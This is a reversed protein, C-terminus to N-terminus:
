EGPQTIGRSKLRYVMQPRTIGLLRAAAAVNGQARDVAKRLLLSEIDDLSVTCKGDEVGQLLNSLHRAVRETEGDAAPEGLLQAPDAKVWSGGRHMAYLGAGFQEGSTFLQPADIGAGETALIVSREVANELERINGPWEYSMVADVARQTFGTIHRGHLRNFKGLFHTMLLPIDERRERLPVVRIPFVNLRFFLDERFRGAAVEERLNVNTAAIVRVDVRRTQTDGLREIEGEQLARLLNGQAGASLTGIEDLFLTGGDAREFRGARSQGAGTFAGREVGFLESEILQEPIAACNVAVFPKAARASLRHLTRAFVEKGVGSEGLFLVTANTPAVRQVMHLVANFGPSIGVPQGSGTAPSPLSASAPARPPIALPDHPLAVPLLYKLDAAGEDAWEEVPKGVIRCASQGMSQCDLERYLVQRGMFETAFGSAYGVQMWCSPETGLAFHRTHEEDEVQHRWLFEGYHTGQELDFELRVPESLGIGELCHMQPGVVFIDKLSTSSRVKRAMAADYTGAQYGMRTFLGRTVELGLLDIMERRLTGLARAHILLMRQDDLWIRGDSTSFHLRSMLDALDPFRVKDVDIREAPVVPLQGPPGAPSRTARNRDKTHVRGGPRAMGDRDM